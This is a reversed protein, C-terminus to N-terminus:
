SILLLRPPDGPRTSPARHICPPVPSGPYQTAIRWLNCVGFPFPSTGPKAVFHLDFCHENLYTQFDADDAGGYRNLLDARTEPIDVRRWADENSLGESAPGHYCCLWTDTEATASDVHFSYVDTPVPGADPDRAYHPICDLSPSLGLDRLQQQDQLLFDRAVSGATSLTLSMLSEDDLTTIEDISGVQAMVENFDGQLTRPWCLANVGDAFKTSALEDFSQVAKIHPYNSSNIFSPM